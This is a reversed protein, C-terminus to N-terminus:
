KKVFNNKQAEEAEKVSDEFSKVADADLEDDSREPSIVETQRLKDRLDTLGIIGKEVM